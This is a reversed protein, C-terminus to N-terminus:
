KSQYLDCIERCLDLCVTAMTIHDQAHVMLLDIPYKNNDGNKQDSFLIDTQVKHANNLEEQAEDFKASAQEFEKQKALRVAEMSLSHSNGAHLILTFPITAEDNM